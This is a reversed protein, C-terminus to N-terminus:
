FSNGEFFTERWIFFYDLELLIGQLFFFESSFIKEFFFFFEHFFGQLFFFEWHFYRGLLLFFELFIDGSPFFYWGFSLFKKLLFIWWPFLIKFYFNGLSPLFVELFIEGWLIYKKWPFFFLGILFFIGQSSFIELFIDEWYFFNSSAFIDRIFFFFRGRWLFGKNEIAMKYFRTHKKKCSFLRSFLCNTFKLTM